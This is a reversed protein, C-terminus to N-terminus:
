RRSKAPAADAAAPSTAINGSNAGGVYVAGSGLATANAGQAVAGGGSVTARAGPRAEGRQGEPQAFVGETLLKDLQQQFHLNLQDVSTYHSQFHGLAELREEFAWLSMLDQKNAAATSIQGDKFYILILPKSTAKFQGFATEFEEQTYKGVKTFFLMVFLDSERIAKNYEDQLRTKSLVELFTEWMVLKLFLGRKVWEQNLRGVFQEFGDRDSRLESSSALFVKIENM